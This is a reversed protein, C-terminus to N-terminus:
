FLEVLATDGCDDPERREQRKEGVGLFVEAGKHLVAEVCTDLADDAVIDSHSQALAVPLIVIGGEILMERPEAGLVGCFVAIGVVQLAVAAGAKHTSEVVGAFLVANDVVRVLAKCVYIFIIRDM